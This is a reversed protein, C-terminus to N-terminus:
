MASSASCRKTCAVSRTTRRTMILSRSRASRVGLWRRTAIRAPFRWRGTRAGRPRTGNQSNHRNRTRSRTRPLHTQKQWITTRAPFSWCLGSFSNSSLLRLEEGVGCSPVRNFFLAFIELMITPGCFLPLQVFTCIKALAYSQSFIAPLKHGVPPLKADVACAPRSSWSSKTMSQECVFLM